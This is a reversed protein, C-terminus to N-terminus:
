IANIEVCHVLRALWFKGFNVFNINSFFNPVFLRNSAASAVLHVVAVCWEGERLGFCVFQLLGLIMNLERHLKPLSTSDSLWFRLVFPGKKLIQIEGNLLVNMSILLLRKSNHIYVIITLKVTPHTFVVWCCSCVFIFWISAALALRIIKGLELYCTRAM